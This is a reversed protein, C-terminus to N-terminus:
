FRKVRPSRAIRRQGVAIVDEGQPRGAFRRLRIFIKLLLSSPWDIILTHNKPAHSIHRPISLATHNNPYSSQHAHMTM